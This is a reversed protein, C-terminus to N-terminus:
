KDIRLSELPSSEIQVQVDSSSSKPKDYNEDVVIEPMTSGLSVPKVSFRRIKRSRVTTAPPESHDTSSSESRIRRIQPISLAPNSYTRTKPYGSPSIKRINTSFSKNRSINYRGPNGPPALSYRRREPVSSKQETPSKDNTDSPKAENQFLTWLPSSQPRTEAAATTCYNSTSHLSNVVRLFDGISTQELVPSINSSNELNGIQNKLINIINSEKMKTQTFYNIYQCMSDYEMNCLSYRKKTNKRPCATRGTRRIKEDKNLEADKEIEKSSAMRGALRSSSLFNLAAVSMRRISQVGPIQISPRKSLTDQPISHLRQDSRIMFPAPIKKVTSESNPWTWQESYPPAKQDYATSHKVTDWENSTPEYSESSLIEENSFGSFGHLEKEFKSIKRHPTEKDEEEDSLNLSSSSTSRSYTTEFADVVRALLETREVNFINNFTAAKDIKSLDSESRVRLQSHKFLNEHLARRRRLRVKQFQALTQQEDDSSSPEVPKVTKVLVPWESLNPASRCRIRQELTNQPQEDQYVPKFKLLYVENLMRRLYSFDRTFENWVKEVLKRELRAMKKCQMAKSIFGLIMVLYGLGFMIWVFIGIKYFFFWVVNKTRQGAVYDGYGITTLTVYAFYVSEEFSWGEFYVFFGSPLFVFLLIGPILYTAIDVLLMFRTEFRKGKYRQHVRLFTSSFLKALQTLVIGNLPIGILSYVILLMRGITSTPHLNGYGITSLTTLAFFYANYFTWDFPEELEEIEEVM